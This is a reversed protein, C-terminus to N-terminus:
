STSNKYRKLAEKHQDVIAKMTDSLIWDDSIIYALQNFM